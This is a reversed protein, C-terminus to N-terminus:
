TIEVPVGKEASEVIAATTKLVMLGDEGSPEPDRGALISEVFHRLSEVVFGVPRGQVTGTLTRPYTFSEQTAKQVMTQQADITVAAKTFILEMKSDVSMPSGSPLIWCSEFAALAGNDFEVTAHYLDPTEIGMSKLVVSRELASVRVPDSGWIWRIRDVTHSMLWFPLATHSSWSKLMQTPVYITNSLRLYAYVPDGLEGSRFAERTLQMPVMFRNSFNFMIRVSRERAAKLIAEGEEVSTALPKEILLHRGSAIVALAPKLHLHDPVVVCAADLEARSLMENYDAYAQPVGHRGAVDKAREANIDAVAVVSANHFSQFIEVQKEGQLGVGIVGIKLVEEAM